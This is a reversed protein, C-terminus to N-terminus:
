LGDLMVLKEGGQMIEWGFPIIKEGHVGQLDQSRRSAKTAPWQKNGIPRSVRGSRM